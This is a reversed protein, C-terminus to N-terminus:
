PSLARHAHPADGVSVRHEELFMETERETEAQPASPAHPRLEPEPILCVPDPGRRTAESSAGSKQESPFLPHHCGEGWRQQPCPLACSARPCHGAFLLHETLPATHWRTINM